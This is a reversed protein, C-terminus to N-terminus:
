SAEDNSIHNKEEQNILKDKNNIRIIRLNSILVFAFIILLVIILFWFAIDEEITSSSPDYYPSSPYCENISYSLTVGINFKEDDYIFPLEFYQSEPPTIDEPMDGGYGSKFQIDIPLIHYDSGELGRGSIWLELKESSGYRDFLTWDYDWPETGEEYNVVDWKWAQNSVVKLCLNDDPCPEGLNELTWTSIAEFYLPTSSSNSVIIYDHFNLCEASEWRFVNFDIGPPFDHDDLELGKNFWGTTNPENSSCSALLLTTLTTFLILIISLRKENKM